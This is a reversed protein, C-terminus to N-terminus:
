KVTRHLKQKKMEQSLKEYSLDVLLVFFFRCGNRFVSAERFVFWGWQKLWFIALRGVSRDAQQKLSRGNNQSAYGTELRM